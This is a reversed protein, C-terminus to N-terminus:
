DILQYLKSDGPLAKRWVHGLLLRPQFVDVNKTITFWFLASGEQNDRVNLCAKILNEMRKWSTTVTLIRISRVGYDTEAGHKQWWSYYAQYRKLMLKASITGRDMELIYFHRQDKITIGFFADPILFNKQRSYNM